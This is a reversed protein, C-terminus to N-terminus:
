GVWLAGTCGDQSCPQSPWNEPAALVVTKLSACRWIPHTGTSEPMRWIDLALSM